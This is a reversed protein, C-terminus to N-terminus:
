RDTEEYTNYNDTNFHKYRHAQYRLWAKKITTCIAAFIILATIANPIWM